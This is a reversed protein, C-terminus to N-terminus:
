IKVKISKTYEVSILEGGVYDPTFDNDFIDLEGNSSINFLKKFLKSDSKIINDDFILNINQIEELLRFTGEPNKNYSVNVGLRGEIVSINTTCKGIYKGFVLVTSGLKIGQKNIEWRFYM